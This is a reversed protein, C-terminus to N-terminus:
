WAPALIARRLSTHRWQTSVKELLSEDETAPVTAPLLAEATFRDLRDFFAAQSHALRQNLFGVVIAAAIGTMTSSFGFRMAELAGRFANEWNAVAAPDMLNDPMKEGIHQVMIALGIVTGLLGLMMSLSAAFSPLGLTVSSSERALTMQQLAALNVKTHSERLKQILSLRDAILRHPNIGALLDAVPVLRRVRPADAESSDAGPKPMRNLKDIVYQLADGETRNYRRMHLIATGSAVLGLLTILSVFILTFIPADM